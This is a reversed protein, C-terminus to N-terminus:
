HEEEEEKEKCTLWLNNIKRFVRDHWYIILSFLFFCFSCWKIRFSFSIYTFLNKLLWSLWLRMVFKVVWNLCLHCFLLFFCLCSFAPFILTLLFHFHFFVVSALVIQINFCGNMSGYLHFLFKFLNEYNISTTEKIKM